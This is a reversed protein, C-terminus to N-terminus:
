LLFHVFLNFSFDISNCGCFNLISTSHFEKDTYNEVFNESHFHMTISLRNSYHYLIDDFSDEFELCSFKIITTEYYNWGYLIERIRLKCKWFKIRFDHFINLFVSIFVKNVSLSKSKTNTRSSIKQNIFISFIENSLVFLNNYLSSSVVKLKEYLVIMTAM